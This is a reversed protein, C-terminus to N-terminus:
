PTGNKQGANGKHGNGNNGQNAANNGHGGGNGNGPNALVPTASLFFTILTALVATLGRRNNM